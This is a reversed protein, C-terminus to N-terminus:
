ESEIKLRAFETKPMTYLHYLGPGRRYDSLVLLEENREAVIVVNVHHLHFRENNRSIWQAGNFATKMKVQNVKFTGSENVVYHLQDEHLYAGTVFDSNIVAPRFYSLPLNEPRNFSKGIFFILLTAIAFGQERRVVKFSFQPLTELIFLTLMIWMKYEELVPHTGDFVRPPGIFVVSYLIVKVLSLDSDRVLLFPLLVVFSYSSTYGSTLLLFLLIIRVKTFLSSSKNWAGAILTLLAISFFLNIFQAFREGSNLIAVPNLVEDAVMLKRLLVIFSQFSSSYPDSFYGASIRFLSHTYFERLTEMGGNFTFAFIVTILIWFAAASVVLKVKRQLFFPFLLFLPSIKLLIAVAFLFGSLVPADDAKAFALMLCATVVLWSQGQQFNYYFSLMAIATIAVAKWDPDPFYRKAFLVFAFIFLALSFLAFVTKSVRASGISAFPSFFLITQPTVTCHNLFFDTEGAKQVHSNFARSDYVETCVNEGELAFRAGYYYNGYDGIPKNQMLLVSILGALLVIGSIIQLKLSQKLM